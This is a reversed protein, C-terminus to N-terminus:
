IFISANGQGDLFVSPLAFVAFAAIWWPLLCLLLRRHGARWGLVLAFVCTLSLCAVGAWFPCTLVWFRAKAGEPKLFYGHQLSGSVLTELAQMQWLWILFISVIAALFPRLVIVRHLLLKNMLIGSGLLVLLSSVLVFRADLGTESPIFLTAFGSGYAIALPVIAAVAIQWAAKAAVVSREKTQPTNM